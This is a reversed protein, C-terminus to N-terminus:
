TNVAPLRRRIVRSIGNSGFVLFMAVFGLDSGQIIVFCCFPMLADSYFLLEKYLFINIM